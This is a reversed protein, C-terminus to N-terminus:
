RRPSAADVAGGIFMDFSAIMREFTFIRAQDAVRAQLLARFAEDSFLRDIGEAWLDPRQLPLLLGAARGEDDNVTEAQEPIDSVLCILGAALAELLANSQGEFLSPLAFADGSALFDPVRERAIGGLLHVRADLDLRIIQAELEARLAGDGAIALHVPVRTRSLADILLSFNKQTDIRGLSVILPVDAPLGFADRAEAKCLASRTWDKLGNYIVTSRGALARPYAICGALMARSVGVVHTYCGSWAAFADLRRMLGGYTDRGVRFSMIRVPVGAIRAVVSGLVAAMPLFCIIADPRERRVLAWLRATIRAVDMAGKPPHDLLRVAPHDEGTMPEREYLFAASTAWGAEALGSALRLAAMPAGSPHTMTCLVLLRRAPSAPKPEPMNAIGIDFDTRSFM